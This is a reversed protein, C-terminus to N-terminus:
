REGTAHHFVFVNIEGDADLTYREVKFSGNEQPTSILMDMVGSVM